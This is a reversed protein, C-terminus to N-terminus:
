AQATLTGHVLLRRTDDICTQLLIVAATPDIGYMLDDGPYLGTIQTSTVTYTFTQTGTDLRIEAGAALDPLSGFPAGHTTAHAALWYTGPAGPWVPDEWGPATYHTVLGQDIVSQGGLFVPLEIGVSAITV